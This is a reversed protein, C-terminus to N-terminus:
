TRGDDNAFAADNGKLQVDVVEKGSQGFDPRWGVTRELKLLKEAEESRWWGGEGGPFTFRDMSEPKMHVSYGPATPTVHFGNAIQAPHYFHEHLADIYELVSRRGSVVLYDITIVHQSYEPLSVGGIHPHLPVHFKAAMLMVAMVENLGGLRCADVQVYDLAEAQLFQKFMIRNQCHEGTAVKINYKRLAARITAHGLIDDPSTPEEIFLPKFHALEALYSEAEPVSWIQNSDLMLIDDWGNVDRFLKLRRLDRELDGGVKLKYYRFGDIKSQELLGKMKEDSYGLWSASTTYIPVAKNEEVEKLREAKGLEQKRLLEIGEEPTLADTIYRFDICRVYEEPSMDAVLRWVPKGQSKAWLDWIANIVASQALHVVGKEPGVWRMQSDSALYRWTNGMNSTLSALSRNVLLPALMEIAACVLNNGRGITFSVGHGEYESNTQLVCYPNSFDVAGNMADSGEDQLSTPFRIDRTYYGTITIAEFDKHRDITKVGTAGNALAAPPAM